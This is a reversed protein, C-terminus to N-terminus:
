RHARNQQLDGGDPINQYSIGEQHYWEAWAHLLMIEFLAIKLARLSAFALRLKSTKTSIVLTPEVTKLKSSPTNSYYKADETIFVTSM